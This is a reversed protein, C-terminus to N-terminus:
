PQLGLQVICYAPQKCMCSLLRLIDALQVKRILFHGCKEGFINVIKLAHFFFLECEIVIIAVNCRYLHINGYM